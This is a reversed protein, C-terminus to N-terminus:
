QFHVVAFQLDHRLLQAPRAAHKVALLLKYAGPRAVSTTAVLAFCAALRPHAILLCPQPEGLLAAGTAADRVTFFAELAGGELGPELTVVASLALEQFPFVAPVQLPRGEVLLRAQRM